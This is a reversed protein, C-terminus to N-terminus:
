EYRNFECIYHCVIPLDLFYGTNGWVIEVCITERMSTPLTSVVTSRDVPHCSRWELGIKNFFFVIPDLECYREPPM